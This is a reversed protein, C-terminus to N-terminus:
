LIKYDIVVVRQLRDSCGGKYDIVVVVKYQIVVVSNGWMKGSCFRTCNLGAGWERACFNCLMQQTQCEVAVNTRSM